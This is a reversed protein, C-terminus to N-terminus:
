HTGVVRHEQSIGKGLDYLFVDGSELAFETGDGKKKPTAFGEIRWMDAYGWPENEENRYSLHMDSGKRTHVVFRVLLYGERIFMDDGVSINGNEAIYQEMDTGYSVVYLDEPVRFNGSWHQVSRIAVAENTVNRVCTGINQRNEWTLYQVGSETHSAVNEWQGKGFRDYFHYLEVRTRGEGFCDVVYYEPEIYIGDADGYDGISELEYAFATGLPEGEKTEDYPCGGALIPFTALPNRRVLNGDMNHLGVTYVHGTKSGDERYFVPRWCERQIDTICMGYLRGCVQVDIRDFAIDHELDLNGYQEAHSDDAGCNYAKCRIEVQYVGEKVGTPLYFIGGQALDIWSGADYGIDGQYVMFPFRVESGLAYRSYDQEGYGLQELHAGVASATVEFERGLIWSMCTENPQCLQNFEKEDTAFAHCVVPTHLTVANVGEIKQALVDGGVYRRYFAWAESPYEKGNKYEKPITLGDEYFDWAGSDSGIKPDGGMSSVENGSLFVEGEISFADNSVMYSGALHDAEALRGGSPLLPMANGGELLGGDIQYAEGNLNRVHADKQEVVVEIDPMGSLWLSGGDFAYNDIKVDELMYVQAGSICWYSYYRDVYYTESQFMPMLWNGADDVWHGMYAIQLTVPMTKYGYHKECTVEYGFPNIKGEVYLDEGTPVGATVDFGHEERTGAGILGIADMVVAGDRVRYSDSLELVHEQRKYYLEVSISIWNGEENAITVPLEQTWQETVGGGKDTRRICASVYSFDYGTFDEAYVVAQERRGTLKGSWDRGYRSLPLFPEGPEACELQRIEYACEPEFMDPNGPFYVLKNYHSRLAEPDRWPAATSIAEFTDYVHGWASNGGDLLGGKPVGNECITMFADFCVYGGNQYLDQQWELSAEGIRDFIIQKDCVFSCYQYAPNEPDPVPEGDDELVVVITHWGMVGITENYRKMRWGLTKYTIANTAIRDHTTMHLNGEADFYLQEEAQVRHASCLWLGILCVFFLAPMGVKARGIVGM